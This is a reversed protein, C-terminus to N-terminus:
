KELKVVSWLPFHDSVAITRDIGHSQASLGRLWIWDLKLEVDFFVANRKFTPEDSFPTTWGRTTFLHRMGEVAAPEWSNFDGMVIAPMTKPFQALDDLV